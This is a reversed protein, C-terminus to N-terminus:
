AHLGFEPFALGDVGAGDEDLQGVAAIGVEVAPDVDVVVPPDIEVDRQARGPPEIAVEVEVALDVDVIVPDDIEVDADLARRQLTLAGPLFEGNDARSMRM